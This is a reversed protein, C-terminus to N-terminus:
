FSQGNRKQAIAPSGCLIATSTKSSGKRKVRESNNLTHPIGAGQQPFFLKEGEMKGRRRCERARTMGPLHCMATGRPWDPSDKGM